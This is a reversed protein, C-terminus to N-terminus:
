VYEKYNDLKLIQCMTDHLKQAQLDMLVRMGEIANVTEDTSLREELVAESITSLQESFGYLANIEQELDFRDKM